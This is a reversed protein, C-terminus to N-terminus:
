WLFKGELQDVKDIDGLRFKIPIGNKKELLVEIRCFFALPRTSVGNFSSPKSHANLMKKNASNLAFNSSFSFTTFYVNTTGDKLLDPISKNIVSIRSPLQAILPFFVSPIFLTLLLFVRLNNKM